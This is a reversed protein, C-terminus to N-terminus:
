PLVTHTSEVIRLALAHKLQVEIVTGGEFEARFKKPDVRGGCLNASVGRSLFGQLSAFCGNADLTNLRHSMIGDLDSKIVAVIRPQVAPGIETVKGLVLITVPVVIQALEGSGPLGSVGSNLNEM